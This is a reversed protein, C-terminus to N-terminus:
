EIKCLEERCCKDVNNLAGEIESEKFHWHHFEYKDEAFDLGKSKVTDAIIASPKGAKFPLNSLAEYIENFDHGNISRAEWGFAKYKEVLPESNMIETTRGNVQLGNKDVIVVLNDLNFHSASMVAEWVSGEESEGDGLMVFVRYNKKDLKGAHAMGQGVPLGHGLSGTPFEIGPLAKEDPHMPVKTNFTNYTWLVEEKFYGQNELVTYLAMCKHGASLIFRDRDGWKPNGPDHKLIKNYLVTIIDVCSFAGGIHAEGFHMMKVINERCGYSKKTLEKIESKTLGSMLVAKV